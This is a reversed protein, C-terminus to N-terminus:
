PTPWGSLLSSAGVPGPRRPCRRSPVVGSCRAFGAGGAGLRRPRGGRREPGPWTLVALGRPPAPAGSALAAARGPAGAAEREAVRGRETDQVQATVVPERRPRSPWSPRHSRCRGPKRGPQSSGPEPSGDDVRRRALFSEARLPRWRPWTLWGQRSPLKQRFQRSVPSGRGGRGPWPRDSPSPPVTQPTVM